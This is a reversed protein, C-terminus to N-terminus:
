NRNPLYWKLFLKFILSTRNTKMYMTCDKNRCLHALGGGRRGAISFLLSAEGENSKAQQLMTGSPAVMCFALNRIKEHVRSNFPNLGGNQQEISFSEATIGTLVGCICLCGDYWHQPDPIIKEPDLKLKDSIRIWAFTRIGHPDM